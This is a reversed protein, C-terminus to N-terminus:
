KQVEPHLNLKFAAAWEGYEGAMMTEEFTKLLSCHFNLSFGM